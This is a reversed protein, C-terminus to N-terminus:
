RLGESAERYRQWGPDEAQAPPASQFNLYFSTLDRAPTEVPPQRWTMTYVADAEAPDAVPTYIGHITGPLAKKTNGIFWANDWQVANTPTADIFHWGNGWWVEVWNHNGGTPLNWEPTGVVRAPVGVARLADAVLISLGTCSAYGHKLTESVPAMIQPTSNGKFEVKPGLAGQFIAPIVAEAILRLSGKGQAVPLLKEYFLPRWDDVPEDLHRFPLVDRRFLEDTVEGSINSLELAQMALASNSKLLEQMDSDLVSSPPARAM